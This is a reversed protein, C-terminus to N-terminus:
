TPSPLGGFGYRSRDEAQISSSTTLSGCYAARRSELYDSTVAATDNPTAPRGRVGM